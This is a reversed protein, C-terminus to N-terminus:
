GPKLTKRSDRAVTYKIVSKKEEEQEKAKKLEQIEQVVEQYDALTHQDYFVKLQNYVTKWKELTAEAEIREEKILTAQALLQEKWQQFVEANLNREWHKPQITDWHPTQELLAHAEDNSLVIIPFQMEAQLKNIREILHSKEETTTILSIPWYHQNQMSHLEVGTHKLFEVGTALYHFQNKWNQMADYIIRDAFFTPIEQYDDVFRYAVRERKLLQEKKDALQKMQDSMQGLLTEQQTFLSAILEFRRDLFRLQGKVEDHQAEMQEKISEVRTLDSGVTVLKAQLAERERTKEIAEQDLKKNSTKLKTISEDLTQAELSWRKQVDHITEKELDLNLKDALKALQDQWDDLRSELIGCSKDLELWLKTEKELQDKETNLLNEQTRREHELENAEKDFQEKLTIFYGRIERENRELQGKLDDVDLEQDLRDIQLKLVTLQDNGNDRDKKHLALRISQYMREAEARKEKERDLSEKVQDLQEQKHALKEKAVAIQFSRQKKEHAILLKELQHVEAEISKM